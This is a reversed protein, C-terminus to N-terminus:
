FPDKLLKSIIWKDNQHVLLLKKVDKVRNGQYMGDFYVTITASEKFQERVKVGSDDPKIIVSDFSMNFIHRGVASASRYHSLIRALKPSCVRTAKDVDKENYLADFFAITILEPNDLQTIEKEENCGSLIVVSFLVIIKLLKSM